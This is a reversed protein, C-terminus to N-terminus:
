TGPRAPWRDAGRAPTNPHTLSLVLIVVISIVSVDVQVQVGAIRGLPLPSKM